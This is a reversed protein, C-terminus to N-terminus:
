TSGLPRMFRRRGTSCQSRPNSDWELCPHRYANIKHKHQKKHLYHGQSPSIGRELLGVSQTYILFSFFRGFDVLDTSGYIYLYLNLYRQFKQSSFSM